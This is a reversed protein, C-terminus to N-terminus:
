IRKSAFGYNRFINLLIVVKGASRFSNDKLMIQQICVLIHHVLSSNQQGCDKNKHVHECQKMDNMWCMFQNCESDLKSCLKRMFLFVGDSFLYM